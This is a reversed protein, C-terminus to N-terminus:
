KARKKVVVVEGENLGDIIETDFGDSIGVVVPREEIEENVLVEVMPNGQSDKIIARDPVLLVDTQEIIVIDADASMGVKLQLDPPVDFGIKVEYTVVGAEVKPLVSISIVKGELQLAPLADLEIIARQGPKVEAIDIEDVEADLETTTLDILHIVTQSAVTPPPVVDGEKADVSAVVGNFPAAITAEDIQKQAEAVAQEAAELQAEALEVRDRSAHLVDKLQKLNYRAEHRAVKTQTLALELASTDLNALVDGKGVRDGEEVYINHIKGGSGFALKKENSVSVTGSGSVTVMLDGRVVEVEQSVEETDGFTDCAVSGALVVCLLSVLVIRWDNM